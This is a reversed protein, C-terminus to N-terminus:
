ALAQRNTPTPTAEWGKPLPYEIHGRDAVPLQDALTAGAGFLVTLLGLM